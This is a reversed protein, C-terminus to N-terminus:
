IRNASANQGEKNEFIIIRRTSLSEFKAKSVRKSEGEETFNYPDHVIFSELRGNKIVVGHILLLHGGSLSKISALVYNGELVLKAIQTPAVFKSLRAEIGYNKALKVLSDHYWGTDTKTNYGELSLAENVLEMTSKAFSKSLQAKLVMQVGAIGCSRWAWYSFDELTKTGFRRSASADHIAQYYGDIKSKEANAFQSVYPPKPSINHIGDKYSSLSNSILGERILSIVRGVTEHFIKALTKRM